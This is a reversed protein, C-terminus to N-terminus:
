WKKTVACYILVVVSGIFLGISDARFDNIDESRYGLMGQVIETTGALVLGLVLVCLVFLFLRWRSDKSKYFSLFALFPFPLFMFFHAIKDKPIGLWDNGLDLGNGFKVFCLLAVAAIYLLLIIRSMWVKKISAM